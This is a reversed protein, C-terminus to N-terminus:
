DKKIAIYFILLTLATFIHCIGNYNLYHLKIKILLLIGGILQVIYGLIFLKKNKLDSKVIKYFTVLM